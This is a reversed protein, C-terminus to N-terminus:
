SQRGDEPFVVFRVPHLEPRHSLSRVIRDQHARNFLQLFVEGTRAILEVQLQIEGSGVELLFDPLRQQGNGKALRAAVALNGLLDTIRARNAGYSRRIALVRNRNHRRTM